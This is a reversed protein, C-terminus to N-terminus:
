RARDLRRSSIASPFVMEGLIYFSERLQGAYIPKTAIGKRLHQEVLRYGGTQKGSELIAWLGGITGNYPLVDSGANETSPLFMAGSTRERPIMALDYTDIFPITSGLEESSSLIQGYTAAGLKGTLLYFGLIQNHREEFSHECDSPTDVFIRIRRSLKSSWGRQFQL